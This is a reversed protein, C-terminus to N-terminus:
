NVYICLYLRSVAKKMYVFYDSVRTKFMNIIETLYAKARKKEDDELEAYSPDEDFYIIKLKSVENKLYLFFRDLYFECFDEPLELSPLTQTEGNNFKDLEKIRDSYHKLM